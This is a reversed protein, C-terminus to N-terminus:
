VTEQLEKFPITIVESPLRGPYRRQCYHIVKEEVSDDTGTQLYKASPYDLLNSIMYPSANVLAAIDNENLFSYYKKIYKIRGFESSLIGEHNSIMKGKEHDPTLLHDLIIGNNVLYQKILARGRRRTRGAMIQSVNNEEAIKEVDKPTFLYDMVIKKFQESEMILSDVILMRIDHESITISDDTILSELTLDSSDGAFTVQQLSSESKPRRNKNYQGLIEKRITSFVITKIEVDLENEYRHIAKALGLYGWAKVEDIEPDFFRYRNGYYHVIGKYKLVLENKEEESLSRKNEGLGRM